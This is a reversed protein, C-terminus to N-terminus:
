SIDAEAQMYVTQTALVLADSRRRIEIKLTRHATVSGSTTKTVALTADRMTNLQLWTNLTATLTGAANGSMQTFRIDCDDGVTAGPPTKWTGSSSVAPFYNTTGNRLYNFSATATVPGSSNVQYDILSEPIASSSVYVATGKAAWLNSADVGNVAYGIDARKIGYALAAFRYAVDAKRYGDASPGDGVVDTDFLDVFEINKSKM